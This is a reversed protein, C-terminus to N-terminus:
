ILESEIMFKYIKKMSSRKIVNAPHPKHLTFSVDAENNVFVVRSGSTKGKNDPSYGLQGFLRVLEDWTFDSPLSKFREILKDRTSM